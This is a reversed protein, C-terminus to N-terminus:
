CGSAFHAAPRPQPLPTTEHPREIAPKGQDQLSNGDVCILVTPHRRPPLGVTKEGRLFARFADEDLRRKAVSTRIFAIPVTTPPSACLEATVSCFMKHFWGKVPNRRKRSEAGVVMLDPPRTNAFGAITKAISEGVRPLLEVM